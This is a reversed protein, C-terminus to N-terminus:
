QHLWPPRPARADCDLDLRRHHHHAPDRRNPVRPDRGDRGARLKRNHSHLPHPVMLGVLTSLRAWKPSIRWFYRAFVWGAAPLLRFCIPGNIGHITGHGTQPGTVVADAPYGHSPDTVFVGAVLLSTGFAAVLRPGWLSGPGPRLAWGLGIAAGIILLGCIIFNAIQTWGCESLSLESVYHTWPNYGPRTAGEILAVIPFRIAGAPV